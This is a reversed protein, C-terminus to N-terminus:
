VEAIKVGLEAEASHELATRIPDLERSVVLRLVWVVVPEEQNRELLVVVLGAMTRPDVPLETPAEFVVVVDVSDGQIQEVAALVLKMRRDAEAVVVVYDVFDSFVAVVVVVAIAHASGLKM